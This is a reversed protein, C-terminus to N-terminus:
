PSCGGESPEMRRASRVEFPLNPSYAYEGELGFVACNGKFGAKSFLKVRYTGDRKLMSRIPTGFNIAFDGKPLATPYGVAKIQQWFCFSASAPCDWYGAVPNPADALEDLPDLADHEAEDDAQEGDILLEDETRELTHEEDLPDCASAAAVTLLLASTILKLYLSDVTPM